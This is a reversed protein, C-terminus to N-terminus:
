VTGAVPFLHDLELPDGVKLVALCEDPLGGPTGNFTSGAPMWTISYWPRPRPTINMSSGHATDANHVVLAGERVPCPVPEAQEWAPDLLRLGDLRGNGKTRVRLLHSGAVFYPCGDRLDTDALAFSFTCAAPHTFPFAPADTRWGTPEGWAPKTVARDQWLRVAEVDGLECAIRGLSPDLCFGRLRVDTRWLDAHEEDLRRAPNGARKGEPAGRAAVARAVIDRLHTVEARDLFGEVVLFGNERYSDIQDEGPQKRITLNRMTSDLGGVGIGGRHSGIALM